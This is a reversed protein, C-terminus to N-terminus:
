ESAGALEKARADVPEVVQMALAADVSDPLLDDVIDGVEARNGGPPYNFGVLARWKGTSSTKARAM